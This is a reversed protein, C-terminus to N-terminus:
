AAGNASMEVIKPNVLEGAKLQSRNGITVLDGEALGSVVEARDATELGLVVPREELKRNRDVVFVTPKGEPGGIATLPISLVGNHEELMLKVEAYMGPVLLLSPNPVDVETEMTRTAPQLKDSFRAVKGSFKRHMTPVTVEVEGGIRIKPVVSEPVPLILRLLTNESLRVLPMAQTQSATGAQIMSGTDAYRKTIVGAFPATVRAYAFLANTRTQDAQAFKVQEDAATLSSKAANIQAEGVLDRSRADDLEQQAILGPRTKSVQELRSFSLHNMEHAAQMRQLDERARGVEARSRDLSAKAKTVDEVMEPIELTALLQGQKVHDGVDVEIKKVYGSVKAMVEVEQFPKFEATLVVDRALDSRTVKAVPVTVGADAKTQSEADKHRACAASFLVFCLVARATPTSSGLTKLTVPM